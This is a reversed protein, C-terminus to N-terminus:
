PNGSSKIEQHIQALAMDQILKYGTSDRLISHPAGDIVQMYLHPTNHKVLQHYYTLGQNLAGVRDNGGYLLYVRTDPYFYNGGFSISSNRYLNTFSSDRSECPGKTRRDFGFSLDIASAARNHYYLHANLPDKDFCGLDLRGMWFGGTIIAADAIQDIGYFSLMYAIQAAGGSSGYLVFPKDPEVWEEHIYKTVNAPHVALKRFGELNGPSGTFWGEEYRVSIVRFGARLLTDALMMSSGWSGLFHTGLGGSYLAITGKIDETPEKIRIMGIKVEAVSDSASRFLYCSSNECSDPVYEVELSGTPLSEVGPEYSDSVCSQIIIVASLLLPWINSGPNEM